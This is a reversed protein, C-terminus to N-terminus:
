RARKILNIANLSEDQTQRRKPKKHAALLHMRSGAASVGTLKENALDFEGQLGKERYDQLSQLATKAQSTTTEVLQDSNHQRPLRDHRPLLSSQERLSISM